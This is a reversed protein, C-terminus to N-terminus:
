KHILNTIRKKKSQQNKGYYDGYYKSYKKNSVQACAYICGLVDAGAFQLKELATRILRYESVNHRVVLLFGDLCRTIISVDPAVLVPPLDVIVYDYTSKAQQIIQDLQESQLLKTADPPIKGSSLFDIKHKSDHIIVKNLEASGILLNTLGKEASLGLKYPLTPKRLDADILLVKKGINAFSCALNIANTSKGNGATASTIGICNSKEQTISFIVNTRLEKYAEEVLYDSNEDVVLPKNSSYGKQAMDPITGLIVLNSLQSLRKEDKVKDNLLALIMIIMASIAAGVMGGLVAGKRYNPSSIINSVEARDVTQMSSGEVIKAIYNPAAKRLANAYDAALEPDKMTVTVKIIETDNVMTTNVCRALNEYSEDLDIRKAARRLLTKSTIIESYTQALSRSALLDSSSLISSEDISNINSTRNNVYITFSSQYSPKIFKKMGWYTGGCSLCAVLLIIWANHLLARMLTDMSVYREHNSFVHSNMDKNM